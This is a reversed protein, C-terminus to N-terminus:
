KLLTVHGRHDHTEGLVDKTIVRWVYVDEPSMIGRYTGDWGQLPNNTNFVVQGWRDFITLEYEVTGTGTTYFIDNVGDNDPTFANPAYHTYEGFIHVGKQITDSCGFSNYVIQTIVYVGTDEYAHVPSEDNSYFFDGFDYEWNVVDSSSLDVATVESEFISTSYPTPDFNAVPQGWVTIAYNLTDSFTCGDSTTVTLGVYYQGSDGYTHNPNQAFGTFGDDFAWQWGMVQSAGATSQDTFSVALPACGNIVDPFYDFAVVPHTNILHTISDVCGQDTTVILQVNFSDTYSVFTHGPHQANDNTGDDFDWDWTSIIGSTITSMDTFTTLDGWCVTNASFAAVPQPNILVSQLLSSSCGFDSTVTLSVDYSGAAAYQHSPNQTNDTPSLDGFDWLWQDITGVGIVSQDTFLSPQNECPITFAFSAVPLDLVVITHTSTSSCGGSTTVTHTVIYVGPNLYTHLVDETNYTNGDGMDWFYNTILGVTIISSDIFSVNTNHCVTDPATIASAADDSVDIIQFIQDSCGPGSTVMLSVLYSGPTLYTHTENPGGNVVTGDGFDWLWQTPFGSSTDTFTNPNGVCVTDFAFGAVPVATVLVPLTVTSDCGNQNTVTLVVNFVGPTQYIYTPNQLTSQNIGDGFDYDWQNITVVDTSLDTFTTVNFLCVTDAIFDPTPLTYVTVPVITTDFCGASNGSILEIDYTGGLLYTHVPNQSNDLPTGDDFDWQWFNPPGLTTDTFQVVDRACVTSNIFGAVPQPLVEVPVTTTDTCGFVNTVVQEAVYSGAGPYTNTPSVLTNIPTGDGFDWEWSVAATSADTFSTLYSTCATDVTFSAIPNPWVDVVQVLTDPCGDANVVILQVNFQGSNPFVHTPSPNLDIASGDSFDWAWSVANTSLDTFTSTFGDCVTDFSFDAVPLPFVTIPLQLTDICGFVNSTILQVNFVGPTLYFHVPAPTNDLPSADGFDWEWNTPSNTTLDVFSTATGLCPTNSTFGPVTRPFADVNQFITDTCGSAAYGAILMVSYTGDAAYIHDPNPDNTADTNGDGFDWFFTDPVGLSTSTFFTTDTACAQVFTFDATPVATVTITQTITDSCGAGGFSVLTVNYTGIAAYTHTPNQTIDLPSLDGFDWEWGIPVGSTADTFTTPTGLCTSPTTFAAVPVANVTVLQSISHTCGAPNTVTLTVTYSGSAAYLYTPNVTNNVPSGDGFDWAWNTVGGIAMNTFVTSDGVCEISFIFNSTPISDVYVLATLTDACGFGTTAILEVTHDGTTLYTNSPSIATSTNGDGFDWNFGTAGTSNNLMGVVDGLCATDPLATFDAIPLPHVTVQQMASDVCGDASTVTLWVDYISDNTLAIYTENAPNQGASTNGNAFDWDWIDGPNGPSTNTFTVDLPTCGDVPALTFSPQPLPFIDINVTDFAQCGLVDVILTVMEQTANPFVVAGPNFATSSLPTGNVGFNWLYTGGATSGNTFNVTLDECGQNVDEIIDAVPIPLVTIVTTMTDPGCYGDAILEVTYTGALPYTISHPGQLTSTTGEGFDWEWTLNEGLSADTFTATEGACITDNVPTFAAVTTPHVLINVLSDDNGCHNFINLYVTHNQPTFGPPATFTQDPITNPTTYTFVGDIYWQWTVNIGNVETANSSVVLPTCGDDPLVILDLVPLTDVQILQSVTDSGCANAAILEVTYSGTTPYTQGPPTIQPFYTNGNGMNWQYNNPPQADVSTNVFTVTEPACGLTLSPIFGATPGAEIVIPSILVVATNCSNSATMTIAYSGDATYTHNPPVPSNTTIVTGDGFDWVYTNANQSANVLTTLTHPACGGYESLDLSISAAVAREFVVTLTAVSTCGNAHTATMTVTFTGFTTYLHNIDALSATTVIPSGDGFDWDYSVGGTTTNSFTVTEQTTPDAASLCYTVDPFGDGDNDDGSIAAVPIDMVTVTNNTVSQCGAGNVMVLQVNYTGGAAYSHTPSTATSTNADGFNWAYTTSGSTGGSTNTFSVTTGACANDPNFTFSASPTPHIVINVISTDSCGDPVNIAVLMISYTGIATISQNIPAGTGTVQDFLTGNIFWDYDVTGADVGTSGNTFSVNYPGAGCFSVGSPVPLANVDTCAAQLEVSTFLAM